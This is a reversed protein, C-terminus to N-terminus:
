VINGITESTSEPLQMGLAGIIKSNDVVLDRTLKGLVESNFPLHLWDGFKALRLWISAPINIMAIKKDMKGGISVVIDKTGIPENNALNFIDSQIKSQILGSIIFCLNNVSLYSRKNVFSAFPYPIGKSVFKRLSALNGKVGNGYVLAPRLIFYRKDSPLNQSIIYEEAKRKSRGYPTVPEEVYNENKIEGSINHISKISSLFIFSEASSKAFVDFLWKTLEYNALLYDDEDKTNATDHAKGALHIIDTIKFNDIAESLEAQNIKTIHSPFEYHKADNRTLIFLRWEPSYSQYYQILHAGIFGSAGTLLLRREKM